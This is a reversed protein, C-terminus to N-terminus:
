GRALAEKRMEEVSVIRGLYALVAPHDSNEACVERIEEETELPRLWGRRPAWIGPVPPDAAKLGYAALAAIEDAEELAATVEADLDPQHRRKAM